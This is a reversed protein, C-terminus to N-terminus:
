NGISTVEVGLNIAATSAHHLRRIVAYHSLTYEMWMLDM